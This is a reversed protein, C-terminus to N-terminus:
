AVVEIPTLAGGNDQHLRWAEAWDATFTDEARSSGGVRWLRSAGASVSATVIDAARPGECVLLDRASRYARDGCVFLTETKLRIAPRRRIAGFAAGVGACRAGLGSHRHM